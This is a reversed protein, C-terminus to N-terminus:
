RRRCNEYVPRWFKEFSNHIQIDAFALIEEKQVNGDKECCKEACNYKVM